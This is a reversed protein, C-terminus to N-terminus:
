AEPGKATKRKAERENAWEAIAACSYCWRGGVRTPVPGTGAVRWMQVTRPVLDLSNAFDAETVYHGLSTVRIGESKLQAFVEGETMAMKRM